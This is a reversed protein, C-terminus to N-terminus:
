KLLEPHTRLMEVVDTDNTPTAARDSRAQQHYHLIVAYTSRMAISEAPRVIRLAVLGPLQSLGQLCDDVGFIQSPSRSRDKTRKAHPSDAAPPEGSADDDSDQPVLDDM